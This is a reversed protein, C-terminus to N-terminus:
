ATADAKGALLREFLWDGPQVAKIKVFAILRYLEEDPLKEVWALLKKDREDGYVETLEKHPWGYWKCVAEGTKDFRSIAGAVSEVALFLLLRRDWRDATAIVREKLAEFEKKEAREKKRAATQAAKEKADFCAPDLCVDAPKKWAPSVGLARKECGGCESPDFTCRGTFRYERFGLEDLTVVPRELGQAKAEELARRRFEEALAQKAADQKRQWCEADTCRPYREERNSSYPYPVFVRRTCRECAKFDFEPEPWAHKKHLPRTRDWTRVAVHHLVARGDMDGEAAEAAVNELVDPLKEYVMLEKAVSVPIIGASISEQVREPLRLLRIRNAIHAQSVGLKEALDVQKWGHDEVLARLAHAEEIPDLDQRQLNEILMIQAEQEPTLKCVLAPVSGLGAMKAARWRREGAVIRFRRTALTEVQDEVLVLPQLIGVERISAALEQLSEEDFNRRPNNPNPRIWDIPVNYLAGQRKGPETHLVLGYGPKPVEEARWNAATERQTVEAM